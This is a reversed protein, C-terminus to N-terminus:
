SPARNTTFTDDNQLLTDLDPLYDALIALLKTEKRNLKKNKKRQKRENGSVMASDLKYILREVKRDLRRAKKLRKKDKKSSIDDQLAQIAMDFDNLSYGSHGYIQNDMMVAMANGSLLLLIAAIISNISRHMSIARRTQRSFRYCAPNIYFTYTFGNAIGIPSLDLLLSERAVPLNVKRPEFTQGPDFAQRSFPKIKDSEIHCGAACIIAYDILYPKSISCWKRLFVQTDL